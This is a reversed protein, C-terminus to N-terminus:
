SGLLARGEPTGIARAFDAESMELLRQVTLPAPGSGRVGSLGAGNQRQGSATSAIRAAAGSPKAGPQYGMTKAIAYTAAAPDVGTTTAAQYIQRADTLLTADRMTQDRMGIAELQAHRVGQLFRVADPYDPTTSAFRREAEIFRANEIQAQAADQEVAHRQNLRTAIQELLQQTGQQAHNQHALRALIHANPDREYPPIEPLIPGAPPEPQAAARSNEVLAQLVQGTREELLQNRAEAAKRLEREEHLAAHPVIRPREDPQAAAAGAVSDAAPAGDGHGPAPAAADIPAAEAGSVPESTPTLAAAGASDIHAQETPSLADAVGDPLARSGRAM